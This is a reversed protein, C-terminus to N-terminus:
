RCARSACHEAWTKMLERRKQFLDGRRYAAEVASPIKHALAMEAVERPFDTHEATWDRFTSRFGHITFDSRGMSQRVTKILASTTVPRGHNQGPFVWESGEVTRMQSLIDLAPASLPVRHEKGAKMRKAPITWVAAATDIEDWRANTAESIRAATLILFELARAASGDLQHLTTIFESVSDYPLAARHEVPRIKTPTPLLASIHGKWRAPNDGQRYGQVTAWDLIAEIRARLNSAMRSKSRWIPELVKMVLKLDIVNISISGIVPSAHMRLSRRWETQYIKSWGAQHAEIFATACEDFSPASKNTREADRHEIPDVGQLCLKRCGNAAERAEALSITHIPGLGMSRARGNLMFRFMWSKTGSDTVRLYLGGGDAHLGPERTKAVRTASLRNILRSV